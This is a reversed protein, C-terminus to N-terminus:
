LCLVENDPRRVLTAKPEQRAHWPNIYFSVGGIVKAVQQEYNEGIGDSWQGQTWDMVEKIMDDSPSGTLDYTTVTELQKTRKNYEFRLYVPGTIFPCFNEPMYEVFDEDGTLGHLQQLEADTVERNDEEDDLNQEAWAQATGRIELQMM